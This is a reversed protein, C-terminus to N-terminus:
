RAFVLALRHALHANQKIVELADARQEGLWENVFSDATPAALALHAESEGGSYVIRMGHKRALHMVAQNEGLCHMFVTRTGKNRLHMVAREFLANGVGRGRAGPLVSLGLEAAGNDFAVHVAGLIALDHGTVAFVDDRAFDIRKVYDRVLDDSIAAGFRLRRDEAALSLFHTVLAERSSARLRIPFPTTTTNM